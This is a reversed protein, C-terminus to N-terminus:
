TEGLEGGMGGLLVFFVPKEGASSVEKVLSECNSRSDEWFSIVAMRLSWGGEDVGEDFFFTGGEMAVGGDFFLLILPTSEWGVFLIYTGMLFLLGDTIM